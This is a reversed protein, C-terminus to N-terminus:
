TTGINLFSVAIYGGRLGGGGLEELGPAQDAVPEGPVQDIPVRQQLCSHSSMYLTIVHLTHHCTFHSSVYLTIVRLNHRYTFHSSVYLTIVHLTHHCTFHSSM